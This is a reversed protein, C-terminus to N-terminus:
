TPLCTGGVVAQDTIGGCQANTEAEGFRAPSAPSWSVRSSAAHSGIGSPVHGPRQSVAVEFVSKALDVGITTSRM